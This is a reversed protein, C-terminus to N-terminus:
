FKIPMSYLSQITFQQSTQSSNAKLQLTQGATVISLSGSQTIFKEGNGITLLGREKARSLIQEIHLSSTIQDFYFIQCKHEIDFNILENQDDFAYFNVFYPPSMVFQYEALYHNASYQGSVYSCMNLQNNDTTVQWQVNSLVWVLMRAKNQAQEEAVALPSLLLILCCLLSKLLSTNVITRPQIIVIRLFRFGAPLELM